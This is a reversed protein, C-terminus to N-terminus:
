SSILWCSDLPTRRGGARSFFRHYSSIHKLGVAGAARVVETVTHRRLDLVWGAMLTVFSEMSPATFCPTFVQLMRAFTSVIPEDPMVAGRQLQTTVGEDCFAIPMSVGEHMAERNHARTNGHLLALGEWPSACAAFGGLLSM